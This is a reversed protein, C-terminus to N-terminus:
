LWSQGVAEPAGDEGDPESRRLVRALRRLFADPGENVLQASIFAWVLQGDEEPRLHRTRVDPHLLQYLVSTNGCRHEGVVAVLQRDLIVQYLQALTDERGYFDNPDKIPTGLVFPTRRNRPTTMAAPVGSRTNPETPAVGYDYASHRVAYLD